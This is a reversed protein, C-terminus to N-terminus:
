PSIRDAFEDPDQFQRSIAQVEDWASLFADVCAPDFHSGRGKELLERSAAFTWPRKYPRASTLADFVDAVAVIRGFIPIDEGALKRPYGSGDYKEHHTHAVEAGVRLVPANSDCLLDYGHRAHMKMIEFEAETLRGPKLLIADPIAIKGVDHMPAAIFLTEQDTAPLGLVRAILRSYYAMRQIHGGTEPDRFEAARSMRCVLEQERELITATAKRIESALWEARNAERKTANRLMLMNRTRVALEKGDIPKILFDTAGAELAAHRVTREHNATVMLIPVERTAEHARLRHIIDIGSISPMMYDVVVMDPTNGLCYALGEAPDSFAKPDCLDDRALLHRLLTLNVVHDDIIVVSARPAPEENQRTM